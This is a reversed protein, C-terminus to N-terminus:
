RSCIVETPVGFINTISVHPDPREIVAKDLPAYFSPWGTGSDFKTASNYLAHDGGCCACYYTGDEYFKDYKGSGPYETGSARCINYVEPSLKKKWFTDDQDKYDFVAEAALCTNLTFFILLILCRM